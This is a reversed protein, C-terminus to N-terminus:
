GMSGDGDNCATSARVQVELGHRSLVHRTQRPWPSHKARAAFVSGTKATVTHCPLAQQFNDVHELHQNQMLRHMVKSQHQTHISLCNEKKLTLM